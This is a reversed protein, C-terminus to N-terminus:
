TTPFQSNKHRNLCPVMFGSRCHDSSPVRAAVLTSAILFQGVTIGTLVHTLKNDTKIIHHKQLVFDHVKKDRLNEEELLESKRHDNEKEEIERFKQELSNEYLTVVSSPGNVIKDVEYRKWSSTFSMKFIFGTISDFKELWFQHFQRAKRLNLLALEYNQEPTRKDQCWVITGTPAYRLEVATAKRNIKQGGARSAAAYQRYSIRPEFFAM